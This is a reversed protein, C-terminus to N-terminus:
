KCDKHLNKVWKLDITSQGCKLGLSIFKGMEDTYIGGDIKM